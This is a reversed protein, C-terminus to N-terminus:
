KLVDQISEDKQFVSTVFPCIPIVKIDHKRLHDVMKYVLEKGLDRGKYSPKVDTHNVIIKDEGARSYSIYAVTETKGNIEDLYEFYGKSDEQRHNFDM